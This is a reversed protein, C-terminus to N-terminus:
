EVGSTTEIAANWPDSLARGESCLQPARPFTYHPQSRGGMGFVEKECVLWLM